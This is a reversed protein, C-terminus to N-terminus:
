ERRWFAQYFEMISQQLADEDFAKFKGRHIRLAARFATVFAGADVWRKSAMHALQASRSNDEFFRDGLNEFHIQYPAKPEICELGFATVAWQANAWLVKERGESASTEIAGPSGLWSLPHPSAIFTTGNNPQKWGVMYDGGASDSAPLGAIFPGASRNGEWGLDRALGEARVLWDEFEERDLGGADPHLPFLDDPKTWGTWFDIPGTAYCFIM